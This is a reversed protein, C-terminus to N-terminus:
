NGFQDAVQAPEAVTPLARRCGFSRMRAYDEGTHPNTLTLSELAKIQWEGAQNAVSQTSTPRAAIAPM